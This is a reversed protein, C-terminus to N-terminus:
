IKVQRQLRSPFRTRSFSAYSRRESPKTLSWAFIMFSWCKNLPTLPRSSSAEPATLSAAAASSGSPPGPLGEAETKVLAYPEAAQTAPSTSEASDPSPPSVTLDVTVQLM